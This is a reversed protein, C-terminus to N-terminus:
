SFVTYYSPIDYINNRTIWVCMKPVKGTRNCNNYLQVGSQEVTKPYTEFVSKFVSTCLIIILIFTIM